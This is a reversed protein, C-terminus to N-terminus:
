ITQDSTQAMRQLWAESRRFYANARHVDKFIQTRLAEPSEFKREDRVRRLFALQIHSPTRGDFPSLLFTEISLEDVDGFTPRFGVNTISNWERSSHRDRTRTIYVGPSPIVEAETRLNLTPVTQKSGIGHGSIIYGAVQPPRGLLRGAIRVDGSSIRSRIESASAMIGRWKVPRLFQTDFGLEAGLRSLMATDGAHKNGFRFNEGVLVIEARLGDRLFETAFAAPTLKALEATFPQVLIAAIGQEAMLRCREETTTLLRPAREPAVICAPHPSFMLVAPRLNRAQAAEVTAKLLAQHGLHVGDFNGITVACPGFAAAEALSRVIL